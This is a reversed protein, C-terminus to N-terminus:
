REFWFMDELHTGLTTYNGVHDLINMPMHVPDAGAEVAKKGGERLLRRWGVEHPYYSM